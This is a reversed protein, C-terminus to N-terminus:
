FDVILIGHLDSEADGASDCSILGRFDDAQQLVAADAHLDDHGAGGLLEDAREGEGSEGSFFDDGAHERGAFLMLGVDVGGDLVDGDRLRDIGEDDSGGRGVNERVERLSDGAIKQGREIERGGRGDDDRGRHVHVHPIMGRRLRIEFNEALAAHLDNLGAGSIEGAAHGAGAAQGFIFGDDGSHQFSEARRLIKAPSVTSIVAPGM